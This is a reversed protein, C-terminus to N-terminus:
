SWLTRPLQISGAAANLNALANLERRHQTYQYAATAFKQLPGACAELESPTLVRLDVAADAHTPNLKADFLKETITLSLIRVPVIRGDGWAFLVTPVQLAPVARKGGGVNSPNTLTNNAAVPFMLMELAALRSYIGNDTADAFAPLGPVGLADTVDMALTFSFSEGPVSQVALPNSGAAAKPQTWAHRLTEPNFQFVVLNPASTGVASTFAAFAGKWVGSM